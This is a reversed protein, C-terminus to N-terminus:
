SLKKLKVGHYSLRLNTYTTAASVNTVKTTISGRAKFLYPQPWVFPLGGTGFLSPLPVDSDSLQNGSASDTILVTCVPLVQTSVTQASNDTFYCGALVLFDADAQINTVVSSVGGFAISAIVPATYVFTQRDINLSQLADQVQYYLQALAPNNTNGIAQLIQALANRTQSIDNM